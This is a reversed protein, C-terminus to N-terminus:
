NPRNYSARLLTITEEKSALLAAQLELERRLHELERNASELDRRCDEINLNNVTNTSGNSIDIGSNTKINAKSTTNHTNEDLFPEGNGTLLWSPNISQFHNLLRELYDAKPLAPNSNVYNQTNNDPVGLARSFNRASLNYHEM